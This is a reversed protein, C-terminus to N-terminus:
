SATADATDVITVGLDLAHHLVDVGHEEDVAGYLGILGMAGYSIADRELDGLTRTRLETANRNVKNTM